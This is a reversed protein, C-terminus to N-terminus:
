GHTSNKGVDVMKDRTLAFLDNIHEDITELSKFVTAVVRSAHGDIAVLDEFVAGDLAHEDLLAAFDLNKLLGGTQLRQLVVLLERSVHTDCVGAPRRVAGGVLDVAVGVAGIGGVLKNHDVVSDDGVAALQANEQLALYKCDINRQQESAPIGM